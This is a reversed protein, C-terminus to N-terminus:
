KPFLFTVAFRIGWGPGGDPKDAYLRGGALFQIPAGGIKVLQGVMLNVPVTWQDGQWDYTSETNL